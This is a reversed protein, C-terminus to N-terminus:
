RGWLEIDDINWGCFVFYYHAPGMVWRLYVAPAHDAIPSIDYEVHVWAGDSISAYETHEWVPIWNQLDTSVQFGAYDYEASAVGLWRKFRVKVAEIDSCDIPTSTLTEAGMGYGYGGLLNYGLVYDHTYGSDPDPCGLGIDPTKKGQPVGFAWYGTGSWAPDEDLMWTYQPICDTAEIRFTEEGAYNDGHISLTFDIWTYNPTSPDVSLLFHPTVSEMTQDVDISNFEAVPDLITVWQPHSSALEATVSEAKISGANKLAVKLAVTEGPDLYGDGDGASELIESGAYLLNPSKVRDILTFSGSDADATWHVGFIIEDGDKLSESVHFSFHPDLSTGTGHSEIDPFDAQGDLLTVGETYSELQASVSAAGLGINYLTLPLVISEKPEIWGNGNGGLTDDLSHDGYEMWAMSPAAVGSVVVDDINWGGATGAEGCPGMVWRIYVEPQGDAVTSIDYIYHLWCPEIYASIHNHYIETWDTGNRSVEVAAEDRSQIALLRWFDLSTNQLMSCDIAPSTLYKKGMNNAYPGALNYGYVSPGTYGRDPDYSEGLPTGWEWLSGSTISWGPDANMEERLPFYRQLTSFSYLSGGHDEITENGAADAAVVYYSYDSCSLLDGAEVSMSGLLQVTSASDLPSGNLGYVVTGAAPESTNWAVTASTDGADVLHVASITPAVFDAEAQASVHVNVNGFGDSADTYVAEFVEGHALNLVHNWPSAAGQSVLITGTFISSNKETELLVIEEEDGQVASLALTVEECLNAATNLDMDKLTVEVLGGDRYASRDLVLQGKSSLLPGVLPTAPDGFLNTEYCCWRNSKYNICWINDEKSDANVRGAEVIGEGFIADMFERHFYQSSGDTCGIEGWGYKDNMVAGFAGHEALTFQEAMCDTTAFSGATCGQSYVFFYRTNTLNQVDQPYLKMVMSSSAHGLHNVLHLQNSNLQSILQSPWWYSDREYQTTLTWTGPYGSTVYGCSDAGDKVEDMYDGGWTNPNGWLFEGIFHARTYWPEEYDDTEYGI